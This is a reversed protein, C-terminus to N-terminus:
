WISLAALTLRPALVLHVWAAALYLPIIGMSMQQLAAARECNHQYLPPLVVVLAKTSTLVVPKNGLRM